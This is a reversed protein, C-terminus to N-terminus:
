VCGRRLGERGRRRGGGGPTPESQGFFSQFRSLQFISHNIDNLFIPMSGLADLEKADAHVIEIRTAAEGGIMASRREMLKICLGTAVASGGKAQRYWAVMMEDLRTLDEKFLRVRLEPTLEPLTRSLSREVSRASIGFERALRHVSLGNLRLELIKRDLEDDVLAVVNGDEQDTDVM